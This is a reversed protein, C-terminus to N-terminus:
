RARGIVLPAFATGGSHRAVVTLISPIFLTLTTYGFVGGMLPTLLVVVEKASPKTRLSSWVALGIATVVILALIITVPHNLVIDGFGHRLMNIVPNRTGMTYFLLNRELGQLFLGLYAFIFAVGLALSKLMRGDRAEIALTAILAIFAVSFTGSSVSTCLLAFMLAPLHRLTRVIRRRFIFNLVIMWGFWSIAGRGNMFIHIAFVLLVCIAVPMPGSSAVMNRIIVISGIAFGGVYLSFGIPGLWDEMLLGPLAVLYRFFHPHGSLGQIDVNSQHLAVVQPWSVFEMLGSVIPVMVLFLVLGVFGFTTGGARDRPM